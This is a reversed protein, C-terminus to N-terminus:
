FRDSTQEPLTGIEGLARLTRGLAKRYRQVRIAHEDGKLINKRFEQLVPLYDFYLGMVRAEYEVRRYVQREYIIEGSSVIAFALEVPASSLDVVDVRSAGTAKTFAHAFLAAQVKQSRDPSFLVAIDWDSLPGAKGELRSGFLYALELGQFELAMNTLLAKLKDIGNQTDM